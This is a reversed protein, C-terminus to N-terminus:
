GARRVPGEADASTGPGPVAAAGSTNAEDTGTGTGTGGDGARRRIRRVDPVFLVAATLLVMLGSAGWLAKGRGFADQAPRHRQGTMYLGSLVDDHAVLTLPGVPSDVTTHSM